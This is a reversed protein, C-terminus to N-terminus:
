WGHLLYMCLSGLAVSIDHQQLSCRGIVLRTDNAYNLEKTLTHIATLLYKLCDHPTDPWVVVVHSPTNYETPKTADRVGAMVYDHSVIPGPVSIHDDLHEPIGWGSRWRASVMWLFCCSKLLASSALASPACCRSAKNKLEISAM